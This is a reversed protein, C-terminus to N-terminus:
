KEWAAKWNESLDEWKPNMKNILEIKDARSGGKIKKERAIAIRVYKHDEFYLLTTAANNSTFGEHSGHQHEDARRFIDNTVGTYLVTGDCNGMIYVWYRHVKDV